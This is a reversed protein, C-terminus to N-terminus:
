ARLEWVMRGAEADLLTLLRGKFSSPRRPVQRPLCFVSSGSGSLHARSGALGEMEQMFPRLEPAAGLAPELLDNSMFAELRATDRSELAEVIMNVPPPSPTLKEGVRSFVERTECGFEPVGLLILGKYSSPLPTLREGRGRGLQCGGRVFFSTDSGLRAALEELRDQGLQLGFLRDLSVLVATADSSGGGLGAKDPIKKTLTISCPLSRGMVEELLKWAKYALNAPAPFTTCTFVGPEPASAVELTDHLPIDQFLTTLEHFGDPRKGHLWLGLNIKAPCNMSPFPRM